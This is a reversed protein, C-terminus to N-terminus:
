TQCVKSYIKLEGWIQTLMTSDHPIELQPHGWAVHEQPQGSAVHEQSLPIDEYEQEHEDNPRGCVM